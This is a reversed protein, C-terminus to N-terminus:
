LFSFFPPTLILLFGAPFSTLPPPWQWKVFACSVSTSLASSARCQHWKCALPSPPHAVFLDALWYGLDNRRTILAIMSIFHFWLISLLQFSHHPGSKSYPAWSARESYVVHPRAVSYRHPSCELCLLSCTCVSSALSPQYIWTVSLHRLSFLCSCLPLGCLHVPTLGPVRWCHWPGRGGKNIAQVPRQKLM